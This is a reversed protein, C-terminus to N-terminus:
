MQPIQPVILLPTQLPPEMQILKIPLPRTVLLQTLNPPAILSSLTTRYWLVQTISYWHVTTLVRCQHMVQSCVRSCQGHLTLQHLHWLRTQYLLPQLIRPQQRIRLIQSIKPSLVRTIPTTQHPTQKTGLHLLQVILSSLTTRSWLVQTISYWHVTTLLRCQHM